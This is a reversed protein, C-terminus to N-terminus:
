SQPRTPLRRWREYADAPALGYVWCGTGEQNPVAPVFWGIRNVLVDHGNNHRGDTDISDVDIDQNEAACITCALELPNVSMDRWLKFGTAGCFACIYEFPTVVTVIAAKM